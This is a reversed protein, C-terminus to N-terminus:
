SSASESSGLSDGIHKRSISQAKEILRECVDRIFALREQHIAFATYLVRFFLNGLSIVVGDHELLLQTVGV